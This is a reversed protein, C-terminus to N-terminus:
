SQVQSPASSICRSQKEIQRPSISTIRNEQTAFKRFVRRSVVSFDLPDLLLTHFFQRPFLSIFIHLFVVLSVDSYTDDAPSHRRKVGRNKQLLILNDFAYTQHICPTEWWLSQCIHWVQFGTRTYIIKSFLICLLSESFYSNRSICM